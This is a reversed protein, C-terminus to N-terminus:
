QKSICSLIRVASSHQWFSSPGPTGTIVIGVRRSSAKPLLVEEVMRRVSERVLLLKNSPLYLWSTDADARKAWLGAGIEEMDTPM